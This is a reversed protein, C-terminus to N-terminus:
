SKVNLFEIAKELIEDRGEVLGETTPKIEIDIKVGIRQTETYDPYFIGLGSILTSFGGVMELRSINGDAGSTQSGITTVHDGTQFSMATFEAHSQTKENVLLVVKGKYKLGKKNGTQRGDKWIFRGPYDLDPYTIKFFDKQSSSIYETIPYVTGNPYNRIDFIIARTDKLTEMMEAVDKNKVVGMNVYGINGELIKYKELGKNWIYNFNAFLYRSVDKRYFNGERYYEINVVDTSGNFIAYPSNGKKSSLNSGNLYKIKETFIAGIEKGDVKTIVDGVRIDDLKALSDNYFGTIIASDNVIKFKAPIWKLGFFENTKDTIFVGHSDDINGVLELMTLHYETESKPDLFKPIMQTLVADWPTDTQYKYPFFYEIINWYRFLSLLRLDKNEWNFHEKYNDENTIEVQQTGKVASVYHKKGQHRNREIHRLSESLAPTFITKDDIWQLDLNKEFYQYTNVDRCKRCDKVKGLNNIWDLYLKSLEEKSESQRVKPLIEFLEKDWNYKGKAVEPHYYKLFGWIKATTALKETETLQYSQSFTSQCSFIITFLLIAPNM